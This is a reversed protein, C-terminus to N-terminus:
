MLVKIEDGGGGMAEVSGYTIAGAASLVSVCLMFTIPLPVSVKLLQLSINNVYLDHFPLPCTRRVM